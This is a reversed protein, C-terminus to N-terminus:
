EERDTLDACYNWEDDPIMSKEIEDMEKFWEEESLHLPEDVPVGDEYKQYFYYTGEETIVPFNDAINEFRESYYDDVNVATYHKQIVINFESDLQYITKTPYYYTNYIELLKNNRIPVVINTAQLPDSEVLKICEDACTFILSNREEDLMIYLEDIGDNNFDMFVYKWGYTGREKFRYQFVREVYDKDEENTILSFDGKLLKEYTNWIKHNMEINNMQEKYSENERWEQLSLTREGDAIDLWLVETCDHNVRFWHWCVRHDQWQEGIYVSYYAQDPEFDSVEYIFSAQGGSKYHIYDAYISLEPIKEWILADVTKTDEQASLIDTVSTEMEIEPETEITSEIELVIDTDSEANVASQESCGTLLLLFCFYLINKKM